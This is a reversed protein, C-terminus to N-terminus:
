NRDRGKSHDLVDQLMGLVESDTGLACFISMAYRSGVLRDSLIMSVTDSSIHEIPRITESQYGLTVLRWGFIDIWDTIGALKPM